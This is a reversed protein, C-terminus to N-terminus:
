FWWYEASISGLRSISSPLKTTLSLILYFIDYYLVTKDSEYANKWNLNKLLVYPNEIRLSIGGVIYNYVEATIWM